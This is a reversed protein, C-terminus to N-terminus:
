RDAQEAQREITTGQGGPTNQLGGLHDRLPLLLEQDDLCGMVRALQRNQRPAPVARDLPNGRRILAPHRADGRRRAVPGDCSPSKAEPPSRWGRPLQRPGSRTPHADRGGDVEVPWAPGRGGPRGDGETPTPEPDRSPSSKPQSEAGEQCEGTPGTSRGPDHQDASGPPCPLTGSGSSSPEAAEAPDRGGSRQGPRFRAAEQEKGAAGGGTRATPVPPGAEGSPCDAGTGDRGPRCPDRVAPPGARRGDPRTADQGGPPPKPATTTPEAPVTADPPRGIPPQRQWLDPVGLGSATAVAGGALLLTLVVLVAVRTAARAAVRTRRAQRSRVRSPQNAARFAAMVPAAQAEDPAEPAAASALLRAVDAYAPPADAPHLRGSLLREATEEDLALPDSAPVRSNRWM